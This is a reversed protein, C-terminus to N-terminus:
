QVKAELKLIFNKQETLTKQVEAEKKKIEALEEQSIYLIITLVYLLPRYEISLLM